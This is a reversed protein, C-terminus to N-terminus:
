AEPSSLSKLPWIAVLTGLVIVLGGLWMWVILPRVVKKALQEQTFGRTGANERFEKLNSKIGM